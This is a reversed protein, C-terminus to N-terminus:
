VEARATAQGLRVGYWMMAAAGLVTLPVYFGLHVLTAYALATSQPVGYVMLTQSAFYHFPGIFGPSSPLLLGFGTVCMTVVGARVDLDIGFIPLFLVYLGAEFCWIVLSLVVLLVAQRPDRFCAAATTVNTALKVLRDRIKDGAMGGIRSTLSIIGSPWIAAVAIALSALGFLAIALHVVDEMWGPVASATTAAVLIILLSLGDLVREIFTVSLAQAVPMNAREALMGSRVLEGLRAPFVNNAGYGVLLVSTATVVSIQNTRRVLLWCRVGRLFYGVLFFGLALPVWPLLEATAFSHQVATFDIGRLALFVFLASVLVGGVIVLSRRKWM